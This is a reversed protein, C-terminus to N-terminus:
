ICRRLGESYAAKANEIGPIGSLAEWDLEPLSYCRAARGGFFCFLQNSEGERKSLYVASGDANDYHGANDYRNRKGLFMHGDEDLLSDYEPLLDSISAARVLIIGQDVLEQKRRRDIEGTRADYNRVTKQDARTLMIPAGHLWKVACSAVLTCLGWYRNEGYDRDREMSAHSACSRLDEMVQLVELLKVGKFACSPIPQIEGHLMNELLSLLLEDISRDDDGYRTKYYRAPFVNSDAVTVFLEDGRQSVNKLRYFM